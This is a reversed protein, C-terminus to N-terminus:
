HPRPFITFAGEAAFPSDHTVRHLRRPHRMLLIKPVVSLLRVLPVLSWCSAMLPPTLQPCQPFVPSFHPWKAGNALTLTAASKADTQSRINM